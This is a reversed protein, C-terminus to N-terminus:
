GAPPPALLWLGLVGLVLLIGTASAVLVTWRREDDSLSERGAKASASPATPRPPAPRDSATPATIRLLSPPTVTRM